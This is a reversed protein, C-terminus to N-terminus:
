NEGVPAEVVAEAAAAAKQRKEIDNAYALRATNVLRLQDALPLTSFHAVAAAVVYRTPTDVRACVRQLADNVCELCQVTSVGPKPKSKSKKPKPAAEVTAAPTTESM